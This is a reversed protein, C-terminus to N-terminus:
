KATNCGQNAHSDEEGMINLKVTVSGREDDNTQCAYLGADEHGVKSINLSWVGDRNGVQLFLLLLISQNTPESEGRKKRM